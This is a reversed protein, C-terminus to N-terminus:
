QAIRVITSGSRYLAQLRNRTRALDKNITRDSRSLEKM